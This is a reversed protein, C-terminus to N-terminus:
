WSNRGTLRMGPIGGWRRMTPHGLSEESGFAYTAPNAAYKRIFSWEQEPSGGYSTIQNLGVTEDPLGTTMGSAIENDDFYGRATTGDFIIEGIYWQNIVLHPSEVIHTYAGENRAQLQKIDSDYYDAVWLGDDSLDIVNSVGWYCNSSTTTVRVRARYAFANLPNLINTDHFSASTAGHYQLFTASGDWDSAAVSNGYYMYYTQEVTNAPTTPFEVWVTASTDAVIVEAWADILTEGDAQTFRVDDFDGQMAAAYSVALKLQFDTQAGSSGGTLIIQKRRSYGSLWPIYEESGFAYTAPNAVYKRIFSWDVTLKSEQSSDWVYFSAGLDVTPINGTTQHYSNTDQVFTVDDIAPRYISYRRYQSRFDNWGSKIISTVVGDKATHATFSNFINPYSSDTNILYLVNNANLLSERATILGIDQEDAIACAEFAYGYGYKTKALIMDDDTLEVKNSVITPLGATDWKDLNGTFDDGFVFTAAIDWDSAAGSNGYYMYIDAEVTNAPTDTEVWVVASTDDVKSELWADILTDEAGNTFRLDSFDSKMDSDYTITLKVQYANQAGSSGGTLTIKKKKTWSANWWTM